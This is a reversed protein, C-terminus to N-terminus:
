HKLADIFLSAATFPPLFNSRGAVAIYDLKGGPEFVFRLKTWEIKASESSRKWRFTYDLNFGGDSPYTVGDYGVEVLKVTPHAALMITNRNTEVLSRGLAIQQSSQAYAPTEWLTAAPPATCLLLAPIVVHTLKM